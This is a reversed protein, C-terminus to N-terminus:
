KYLYIYDRNYVVMVIMFVNVVNDIGLILICLVM